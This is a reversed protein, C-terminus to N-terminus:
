VNNKLEMLRMEILESIEKYIPKRSRMDKFHKNLMELTTGKPFIVPFISKCIKDNKFLKLFDSSKIGKIEQFSEEADKDYNFEPFEPLEKKWRTLHNVIEDWVKNELSLKDFFERGYVLDTSVGYDFSIQDLRETYFPKNKSLGPDVFFIMGHMKNIDNCKSITALKKEFDTVQGQKKTSDHDDRMKQEVVYVIEDKRFHLDLNKRKGDVIIDEPLLECGNEELYLKSLHEFADGFKIEHSQSLNQIIKAEPKTPRFIGVYRDPSTAIGRLLNAKSNGFVAHNLIESFHEYHM